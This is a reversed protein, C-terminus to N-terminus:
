CCHHVVGSLCRVHHVLDVVNHYGACSCLSGCACGSRAGCPVSGHQNGILARHSAVSAEHCCRCCGAPTVVSGSTHLLDTRQMRTRHRRNGSPGRAMSIGGTELSAPCCCYRGQLNGVGNRTFEICTLEDFKTTEHLVQVLGKLQYRVVIWNPEPVATKLQEVMEHMCRRLAYGLPREPALERLHGIDSMILRFPEHHASVRTSRRPSLEGM